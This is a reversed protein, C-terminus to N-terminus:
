NYGPVLLATIGAGSFLFLPLGAAGKADDLLRM